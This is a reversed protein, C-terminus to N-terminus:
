INIWGRKDKQLLLDTEKPGWTGAEYNPFVPKQKKWGELISDVFRWSYEVEDWRAFLTSDGRMVDYLLREYAEPSNIDLQCNQCFDMQVPIIKQQTGPEKANFRFFVGERPQIRIVLLNPQLIKEKFYLINEISKFQIIIETSKQPMRKGTRIYFPVGAWRFNEIFVRLAVYTETDSTVSVREEERYGLFSEGGLQGPGYQGRVTNEQVDEQTIKKLAKLVKVKENRISETDLDNPPEMGILSVLQLMHSQVMDRMAGAKEYYGGRNEVGVRESSSIQINDIYKSNWLPEFFMNAFRLVMINQLMEKGLYHDIRYTNKEQFVEVIKSNLYKASELDRGFPKEIVIRRWSKEEKNIVHKHLADIIHQFYEPAVAMYYIKNGKTHHKEDIIQLRKQLEIYGEKELFNMSEYYIKHSIDKWVEEEMPFRSFKKVAKYAEERYTNSTKDKRGIAMISFAEPLLRQYQLNYIAPLLKRHTLDGTAGFIVLTCSLDLNTDM